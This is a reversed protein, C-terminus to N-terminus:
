DIYILFLRFVAVLIYYALPVDIMLRRMKTPIRKNRESWGGELESM